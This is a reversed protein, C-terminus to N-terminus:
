VHVKRRWLKEAIVGIVVFFFLTCLWIEIGPHDHLRYVTEADMGPVIQSITYARIRDGLYQGIIVGALNGVTISFSIFIRNGLIFGIAFVWTWM